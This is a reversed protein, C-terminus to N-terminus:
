VTFAISSPLYEGDSSSANLSARVQDGEEALLQVGDVVGPRLVEDASPHQDDATASGSDDFGIEVPVAM